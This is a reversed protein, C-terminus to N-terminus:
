IIGTSLLAAEPKLVRQLNRVVSSSKCHGDWNSDLQIFLKGEAVATSQIGIM